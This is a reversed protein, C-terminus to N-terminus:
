RGVQEKGARESQFVGGSTLDLKPNSKSSRFYKLRLGTTGLPCENRCVTVPLSADSKVNQKIVYM